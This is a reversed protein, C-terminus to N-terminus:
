LMQSFMKEVRPMVDRGRSVLRDYRIATVTGDPIVDYETSREAIPDHVLFVWLSAGQESAAARLASLIQELKEETMADTQVYSSIVRRGGFDYAKRGRMALEAAPLSMDQLHMGERLLRREDLGLAAARERAWAAEEPPIKSSKLAITDLYLATVALAEQRPSPEMGAELMLRLVSLACAGTQDIQAYPYPLMRATPHHDICVCVVEDRLPAHHDVMAVVDGTIINGIFGDPEVEFEPMVRRSQADARTPLVIQAAIGWWECLERLLVCSALSDVDPEDHGTIVLRGRGAAERLIAYLRDTRASM